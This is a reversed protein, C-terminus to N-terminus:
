LHATPRARCLRRGPRSKRFVCFLEDGIRRHSVLRFRAADALRRPGPGDAITPAAAGGFVFPCITLHLEDVLGQSFLAANLEGGGECLLRKVGRASRLWALAARFDIRTRGCVVVEDAPGDLQCLRKQGALETTLILIPSFRHTFISSAPAIRGHGSVLIRMNFEALGQEIRRRRYRAPGPGLHIDEASATRAGCMVADVTARLAYLHALDRKSGFSAIRRNATAIKGDATMAMNVLVYPLASSAAEDATPTSVRVIM